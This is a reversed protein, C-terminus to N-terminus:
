SVTSVWIVIVRHLKEIVELSTMMTLSQDLNDNDLELDLDDNKEILPVTAAPATQTVTDSKKESGAWFHLRM